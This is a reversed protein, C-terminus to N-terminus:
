TSHNLWTETFSLIDFDGYEAPILDLKPKLSQVNLHLFSVNNNMYKHIRSVSSTSSDSFTRNEIPGPNLEIGSIILLIAIVSLMYYMNLLINRTYNINTGHHNHMMFKTVEQELDNRLFHLIIICPLFKVGGFILMNILQYEFLSLIHRARIAVSYFQTFNFM